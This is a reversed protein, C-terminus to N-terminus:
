RFIVIMGIIIIVWLVIRAKKAFRKSRALQQQQRKRAIQEKTQSVAREVEASGGLAMGVKEAAKVTDYHFRIDHTGTFAEILPRIEVM